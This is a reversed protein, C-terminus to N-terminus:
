SFTNIRFNLCFFLIALLFCTVPVSLSLALFLSLPIGYNTISIKEQQQNRVMIPYHPLVISDVRKENSLLQLHSRFVVSVCIFLCVFLCMFVCVRAYM